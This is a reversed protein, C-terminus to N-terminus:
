LDPNGLPASMAGHAAVWAQEVLFDGFAQQNTQNNFGRLLVRGEDVIVRM